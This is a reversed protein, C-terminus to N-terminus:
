DVGPRGPLPPNPLPEREGREYREKNKKAVKRCEDRYSIRRKRRCYGDYICMFITFSSVAIVIVLSTMVPNAM